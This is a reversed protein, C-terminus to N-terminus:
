VVQGYKRIDLMVKQHHPISPPLIATVMYTQGECELRDGRQIDLDPEVYTIHTLQTEMRSALEVERASPAYPRRMSPTSIPVFNEPFQGNVNTPNDRLLVGDTNLLHTISM